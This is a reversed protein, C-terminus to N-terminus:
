LTVLFFFSIVAYLLAMAVAGRSFDRVRFLRFELLPARGSAAVARELRVFLWGVPIAGALSAFVWPPWGLERGEVIPVAIMALLLSGLAVGSVDLRPAQSSRSEPIARGSLALAAIGLPLNVLFVWRWGLGFADIGILAGGILQGAMAGLGAIVGMIALPRARHEPAFEVQIISLVQPWLLAAGLGQLVRAAILAEASPAAACLTLALTFGVLGARFMRRRGAIDGLRGGTILGVAFALVYGGVVWQVDSESAGLETHLSPAAVYVIFVDLIYMFAGIFLVPLLLRSRKDTTTM